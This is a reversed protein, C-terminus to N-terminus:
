GMNVFTTYARFPPGELFFFRKWVFTEVNLLYMDNLVKKEPSIGGYIFM